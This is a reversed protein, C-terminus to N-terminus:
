PTYLKKLLAEKTKENELSTLIKEVEQTSLPKQNEM